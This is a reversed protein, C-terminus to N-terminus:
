QEDDEGEPIARQRPATLTEALSAATTQSIEDEFGSGILPEGGIEDLSSLFEEFAQSM